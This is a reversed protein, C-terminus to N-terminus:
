VTVNCAKMAELYSCKHEAQYRLVERHQRSSEADFREDTDGGEDIAGPAESFSTPMRSNSWLPRRRRIEQKAFALPTLSTEGFNIVPNSNDMKSLNAIEAEVDGPAIKRETVMEQVFARIDAEHFKARQENLAAKQTTVDSQLDQVTQTLDQVTQTLTGIVQTMAAFQGSLDPTAPAPAEPTTAEPAADKTEAYTMRIEEQLQTQSQYLQRRLEAVEEQLYNMRSNLYDYDELTVVKTAIAERLDELAEAPVQKEAAEIGSAEIVMERWATLTELVAEMGPVPKGVWEEAFQYTNTPEVSFKHDSLGKVAPNTEGPAPLYAIHNINWKGPTPNNPHSPDYFGISRKPHRRANVGSAFTADVDRYDLKLTNGDVYARAIWGYAYSGQHGHLVPAEHNGLSENYADAAEKLEEVTWLKSQGAGDTQLGARFAEVGFAKDQVLPIPNPRTLTATPM